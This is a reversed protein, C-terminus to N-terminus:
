CKWLGGGAFLVLEDLFFFFLVRFPAHALWITATNRARDSHHAVVGYKAWAKSRDRL